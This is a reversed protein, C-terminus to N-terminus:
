NKESKPPPPPNPRPSSALHLRERLHKTKQQMDSIKAGLLSLRRVLEAKQAQFEPSIGGGESSSLSQREKFAQRRAAFLRRLELLRGELFKM